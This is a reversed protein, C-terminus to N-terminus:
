ASAKKYFDKRYISFNNNVLEDILKANSQYIRIPTNYKKLKQACFKITHYTKYDLITIWVENFFEDSLSKISFSQRLLQDGEKQTRAWWFNYQPYALKISNYSRESYDILFINDM